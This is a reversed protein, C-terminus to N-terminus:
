SAMHSLFVVRRLGELTEHMFDASAQIEHINIEIINVNGARRVIFMRFLKSQEFAKLFIPQDDIRALTLEELWRQVKEAVSNVM